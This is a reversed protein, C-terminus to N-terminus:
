TYMRNIQFTRHSFRFFDEKGTRDEPPESNRRRNKAKTREAGGLAIRLGPRHFHAPSQVSSHLIFTFSQAALNM